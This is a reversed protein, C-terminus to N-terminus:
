KVAITVVAPSEVDGVKVVVPVASGPTVGEPIRINTQFVGAVFYPAAGLYEVKAPLGGVTASVKQLPKPFSATAPLGDIGAPNTEGEGTGWLVVVSGRAAPNSASNLSNDENLAAAPGRGSSDLTFLGPM